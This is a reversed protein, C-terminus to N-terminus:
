ETWDKPPGSPADCPHSPDIKVWGYPSSLMSGRARQLEHILSELDEASCCLAFPARLERKVGRASIILKM